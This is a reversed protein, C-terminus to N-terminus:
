LAHNTGHEKLTTLPVKLSNEPQSMYHITCTQDAENVDEMYIKSGKYTVDAMIPSSIIEKARKHDM